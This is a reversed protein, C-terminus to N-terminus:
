VVRRLQRSPYDPRYLQKSRAQRNSITDRRHRSKGHADPCAELDM